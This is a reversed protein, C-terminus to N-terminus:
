FKWTESKTENQRYKEEIQLLAKASAHTYRYNFDAETLIVSPLRQDGRKAANTYTITYADIGNKCLQELAAKETLGRFLNNHEKSYKMLQSRRTKAFDSSEVNKDIIWSIYAPYKTASDELCLTQRLLGSNTDWKDRVDVIVFHHPGDPLSTMYEDITGDSMADDREKAEYAEREAATMRNLEMDPVFATGAPMFVVSDKGDRLKTYERDFAENFADTGFVPPHEAAMVNRLAANRIKDDMEKRQKEVREAAEKREMEARLHDEISKGDCYAEMDESEAELTLFAEIIQDARDPNALIQNIAAVRVEPSFDDYNNIRAIVEFVTNSM